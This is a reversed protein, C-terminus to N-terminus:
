EYSLPICVSTSCNQGKTIAKTLEMTLRHSSLVSRVEDGQLWNRMLERNSDSHFLGNYEQEELFSENNLLFANASSQIRAHADIIDLSAKTRDPVDQVTISSGFIPGLQTHISVSSNRGNKNYLGDPFEAWKRLSPSSQEFSLSGITIAHGSHKDRVVFSSVVDTEGFFSDAYTSSRMSDDIMHSVKQSFRSSQDLPRASFSSVEIELRQPDFLVFNMRIILVALDLYHYAGHMMMGYGYKYPHDERLRYECTRNWVGGFAHLHLSTVPQQYATVRDSLSKLYKDNYITHYRSLTMVSIPANHLESNSSLEQMQESILDPDYIEGTMPALVPKEVLCEVGNRSLIKTYQFHFRVETAIYSRCRVGRCQQDQIIGRIIEECYREDGKRDDDLLVTDTPMIRVHALRESINRSESRLDILTWSNIAGSDIQEFILEAYKNVVIEDFGIVILHYPQNM